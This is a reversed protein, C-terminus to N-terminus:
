VHVGRNQRLSEKWDNLRAIIDEVRGSNELAQSGIRGAYHAGLSSDPLQIISDAAEIHAQDRFAELVKVAIRIENTSPAKM